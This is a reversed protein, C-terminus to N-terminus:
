KFKVEFMLATVMAIFHVFRDPVIHHYRQYDNIIMVANPISNADLRSELMEYMRGYVDDGMRDANQFCWQKADGYRREKMASVLTETDAESMAGLVGEDIVNGNRSAYEQLKKITQRNDPAFKMVIRALVDPKFSCGEATLIEGCRKFMMAAIQKKTGEDHDFNVETLRSRLPGTLLNKNNCTAIFRCNQHVQEFLAKLADQAQVSLRDCNHTVIGDGNIFTHNKNVTLNRVRKVGLSRISVIKSTLM